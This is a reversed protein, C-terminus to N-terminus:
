DFELYANDHKYDSVLKCETLIDEYGIIFPALDNDLLHAKIKLPPSVHNEDKFVITLQGLRGTIASNKSSGIGYLSTPESLLIKKEMNQWISYPIVSIPNGTDIIAKHLKSWGNISKLQVDSLLRILRVPIGLAFFDLDIHTRFELFIKTSM